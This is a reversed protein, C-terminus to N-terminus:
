PKDFTPGYRSGADKRIIALERPYDAKGFRRGATITYTYAAVNGAGFGASLFSPTATDSVHGTKWPDSTFNRRLLYDDSLLSAVTTFDVWRHNILRFAAFTDAKAQPTLSKLLKDIEATVALDFRGGAAIAREAVLTGLLNSPLDEPSFSSNHAGPSRIAYTLIEYGFSDDFSISRAVGITSANPPFSSLVAEGHPTKIVTGPAAGAFAIQEYVNKTMDCLDRLHGLDVFGAAGTYVLGRVESSAGHIGLQGPEALNGDAPDLPSAAPALICCTRPIPPPGPPTSPKPPLPLPPVPTPAGLGEITIAARRNRERNTTVPFNAADPITAGVGHPPPDFAIAGKTFPGMSRAKWLKMISQALASAVSLAREDSIKQEFAAGKADRDAHGVVAIKGLAVCEPVAFSSVVVDALKEIKKREPEPLKDVDDKYQGWGYIIESVSGACSDEQPSEGSDLDLFDGSEFRAVVPVATEAPPRVASSSGTSASPLPVMTALTKLKAAYAMTHDVNDVMGRPLLRSVFPWTIALSSKVVRDLVNKLAGSAAHRCKTLRWLLESGDPVSPYTQLITQRYAEALAIGQELSFAADTALRKFQEQTLHLQSQAEGGQWMIQFYGLEGLSTPAAKFYGDSEVAIWGLLFDRPLSGRSQDMHDILARLWIMPQVHRRYLTSWEARLAQQKPDDGALTRGAMEPHAQWFVRDTLAAADTDGRTLIAALFDPPLRGLTGSAIGQLSIERSANALIIDTTDADEAASDSGPEDVAKAAPQVNIVTPPVPPPTALRLILIDNLLRGASDTLQRAFRDEREHPFAGGEIVQVYQGPQLSEPRLGEAAVGERNNLEGSAIVSVHASEGEARRIMVDGSRPGTGISEKPLAVIEFYQGLQETLASRTPYVFADFIQAATPSADGGAIVLSDLSDAREFLEYLLGDSAQRRDTAASIQDALDLLNETEIAMIFM